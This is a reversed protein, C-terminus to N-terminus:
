AEMNLFTHNLLGQIIKQVIRYFKGSRKHEFAECGIAAFTASDRDQVIVVAAVTLFCDAFPIPYVEAVMLWVFIVLM